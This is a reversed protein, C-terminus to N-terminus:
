VIIQLSSEKSNLMKQITKKNDRRRNFVHKDITEVWAPIEISELDRSQFVGAGITKVGDPISVVDKAAAVLEDKRM